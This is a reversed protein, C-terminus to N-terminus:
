TRKVWGETLSPPSRQHANKLNHFPSSHFEYGNYLKIHTHTSTPQQQPKRQLKFLPLALSSPRTCLFKFLFNYMRGPIIQIVFFWRSYPRNHGYLLRKVKRNFTVHVPNPMPQVVLVLFCWPFNGVRLDRCKLGTNLFFLYFEHWEKEGKRKAPM